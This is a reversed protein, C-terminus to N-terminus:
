KNPSLELKKKKRDYFKKIIIDMQNSIQKYRIITDELIESNNQQQDM